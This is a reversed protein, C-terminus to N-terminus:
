TLVCFPQDLRFRNPYKNWRETVEAGTDQTRSLGHVPSESRVIRNWYKPEIFFFFFRTHEKEKMNEPLSVIKFKFSCLLSNNTHKMSGLGAQDKFVQREKDGLHQSIPMSGAM